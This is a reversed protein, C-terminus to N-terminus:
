GPSFPSFKQNKQFNNGAGAFLQTKFINQGGGFFIVM